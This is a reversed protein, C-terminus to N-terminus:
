PDAHSYAGCSSGTLVECWERPHIPSWARRFADAQHEVRVPKCLQKGVAVNLFKLGHASNFLEFLCNEETDMDHSLSDIRSGLSM